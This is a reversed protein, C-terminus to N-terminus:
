NVRLDPPVDRIGLIDLVKRGSVDRMARAWLEDEAEFIHAPKVALPIWSRETLEAELQNAGWGAYGAFFRVRRKLDNALQELYERDTSFFLGSGAEADGLTPDEHLAMLPGECPGGLFIRDDRECPTESVQHWVQQLRVDLPRNLVLGLAGDISHRVLLVVSHFFNPDRLDPSAVLLQGQLSDM